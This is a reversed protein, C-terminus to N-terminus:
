IDITVKNNLIQYKDVDLEKTLYRLLEGNKNEDYRSYLVTQRKANIYLPLIEISKIKGSEDINLTFIGTEKGKLYDTDSMLNGM